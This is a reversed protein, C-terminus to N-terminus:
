LALGIEIGGSHITRGGGTRLNELGDLRYFPSIRFRNIDFGFQAQFFGGVLADLRNTEPDVGATIGGSLRLHTPLLTPTPINVLPLEAGLGVNGLLSRSNFSYEASLIIPFSIGHTEFVDLEYGLGLTADERSHFTLFVRHRRDLLGPVDRPGEATLEMDFGPAAVNPKQASLGAHRLLSAVVSNSNPGNPNYPINWGNIEDLHEKMLRAKRCADEGEYVRVSPAREDYDTFGEEYRGCQTFITDDRDPGGRLAYAAGTSDTFVIFLHFFSVNPIAIEGARVDITGRCGEPVNSAFDNECSRQIIDNQIHYNKSQQEVHTLEHSLLWRGQNTSPAYKGAAFVVHNGVTFAQAKLARASEAAKADTHVRVHSFRKGNMRELNYAPHESSSMIESAIQDAEQEYRDGPKGLALQSQIENQESNHVRVRSFDHGFRPEMFARTAPDLPQGPSRLVEHVIPPVTAPEAGNAARRQLRKNRCEECEGDLGPSGGCACKRQLFGKSLRTFSVSPSTKTQTQFEM